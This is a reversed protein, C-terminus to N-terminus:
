QQQINNKLSNIKIQLDSLKSRAEDRIMAADKIKNYIKSLGNKQENTLGYKDIDLEKKYANADNFIEIYKQGNIKKQQTYKLLELNANGVKTEHENILRNNNAIENELQNIEVQNDINNNNHDVIKQMERMNNGNPQQNNLIDNRVQKFENYTKYFECSVIVLVFFLM